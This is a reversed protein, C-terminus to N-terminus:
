NVKKNLAAKLTEIDTEVKDVRSKLSQNEARLDNIQKVLEQTASINLASLAEYDVTHFDNVEKGYVFVTLKEGARGLSFPTHVLFGNADAELV